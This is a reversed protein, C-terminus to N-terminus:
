TDHQEGVSYKKANPLFELHRLVVERIKERCCQAHGYEKAAATVENIMLAIEHDKLDKTRRTM